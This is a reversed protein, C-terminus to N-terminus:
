ARYFNFALIPSSPHCRHGRSTWFSSLSLTSNIFFFFFTTGTHPILRLTRENTRIGTSWWRPFFLGHFFYETISILTVKHDELLYVTRKYAQNENTLDLPWIFFFIIRLRFNINTFFYYQYICWQQQSMNHDLVYVTWKYAQNENTFGPTM